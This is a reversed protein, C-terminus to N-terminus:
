WVWHGRALFVAVDENRIGPTGRIATISTLRGTFSSLIREDDTVRTVREKHFHLAMGMESNGSLFGETTGIGAGLSGASVGPSLQIRGISVAGRGGGTRGRGETLRCHCGNCSVVGYMPPGTRPTVGMLSLKTRRTGFVTRGTSVVKLRRKSSNVLHM